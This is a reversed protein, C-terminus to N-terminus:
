KVHIGLSPLGPIISPQGSSVTINSPSMMVNSSSIVQVNPPLMINSPLMQLNSQNMLMIPVGMVSQLIWPCNPWCIGTSCWKVSEAGVLQETSGKSTAYESSSKWKTNSRSARAECCIRRCRRVSSGFASSETSELLNIKEKRTWKRENRNRDVKINKISTSRIGNERKIKSLPAWWCHGIPTSCDAFLITVFLRRMDEDLILLIINNLRLFPKRM